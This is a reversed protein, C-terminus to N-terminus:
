FCFIMFGVGRGTFIVAAVLNVVLHMAGRFIEVAIEPTM